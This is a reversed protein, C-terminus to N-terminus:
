DINARDKFSVEASQSFTFVLLFTSQRLTKKVEQIVNKGGSEGERVGTGYKPDLVDRRTL